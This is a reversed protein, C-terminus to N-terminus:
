TLRNNRYIQQIIRDSSAKIVRYMADWNYLLNPKNKDDIHKDLIESHCYPCGLSMHKLTLETEEKNM